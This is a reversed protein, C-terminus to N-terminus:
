NNKKTLEPMPLPYPMLMQKKIKVLNAEKLIINPCYISIPLAWLNSVPYYQFLYRKQSSAVIDKMSSENIKSFLLGWVPRMKGTNINYLYMLEPFSLLSSESELSMFDYIEDTTSLEDEKLKFIMLIEDLGEDQGIEKIKNFFEEESLSNKDEIILNTIYSDPINYLASRAHGNLDVLKKIATRRMPFSVLKGNKVIQIDKSKMGEDDIPMYGLLEKGELEKLNPKDWVEYSAPLIRQNLKKAFFGTNKKFFSYFQEEEGLEERVKSVGKGLLDLFFKCAAQNIFVVPGAYEELPKQEIMEKIYDLSIKMTSIAEELKPLNKKRNEILSISQNIKYWDKTYASIRIKISYYTEPKKHRNGESDLFYQVSNSATAIIVGESLFSYNRLFESLKQAYSQLFNKDYIEETDIILETKEEVPLFDIPYDEQPHKQLYAKKKSFVQVSNKYARDIAIWFIQRLALEDNELPVSSIVVNWSDSVGGENYNSNDLEPKSVRVIAQISRSQDQYDELLSGFSYAFMQYNVDKLRLSIYYPSEMNEIKLNDKARNIEIKMANFIADTDDNAFSFSSILLLIVLFYKKM